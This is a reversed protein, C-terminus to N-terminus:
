KGGTKKEDTVRPMNFKAAMAAVQILECAGLIAHRHIVDASGSNALGLDGYVRKQLRQFM